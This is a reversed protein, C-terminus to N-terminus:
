FFSRFGPSTGSPPEGPHQSFRFTTLKRLSLDLPSSVCRTFQGLGTSVVDCFAFFALEECTLSAVAKKSRKALHALPNDFATLYAELSAPSNHTKFSLISSRPLLFGTLSVSQPFGSALVYKVFHRYM